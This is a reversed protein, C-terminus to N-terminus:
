WKKNTGGFRGDKLLLQEIVETIPPQELVSNQFLRGKVDINL